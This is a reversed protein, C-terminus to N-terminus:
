GDTSGKRKPGGLLPGIFGASGGVILPLGVVFVLAWGLLSGEVLGSGLGIEVAGLGVALFTLRLLVAAM